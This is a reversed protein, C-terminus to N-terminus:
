IWNNSVNKYHLVKYHDEQFWDKIITSYIELPVNIETDSLQQIGYMNLRKGFIIASNSEGHDTGRKRNESMSRGFESWVVILTDDFRKKSELDNVFGSIGTAFENLLIDHKNRQFQHTDFGDLKMTFVRNLDSSVIASSINRLDDSFGPSANGTRLERASTVPISTAHGLRELWSTDLGEPAKWVQEATYHSQDHHCCRFDNLILVSRNRYLDTLSILSSNLGIQENLKIVNREPISISPRNEYYAADSFPIFTNYWDNGGALHILVVAKGRGAWPLLGALSLQPLALPMAALMGKKLFTRRIM